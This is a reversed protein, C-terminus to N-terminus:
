GEQTTAYRVAAERTNELWVRAQERNMGHKTLMKILQDTRSPDISAETIWRADAERIGVKHLFRATERAWSIPSTPNYGVNVLEEVGPLRDNPAPGEGAAQRRVRYVRDLEEKLVARFRDGATSGILADTRRKQDPARVMRSAMRSAADPGKGTERRTADAAGVRALDRESPATQGDPTRVVDTRTTRETAPARITQTTGSPSLIKDIEDQIVNMQADLEERPITGKQGYVRSEEAYLERLRSREADTLQSDRKTSRAGTVRGGSFREVEPHLRKFARMMDLVGEAGFAGKDTEWNSPSGIVNITATKGDDTLVISAEVREGNPGTYRYSNSGREGNKLITGKVPVSKTVERIPIEDILNAVRREFRDADEALFGAGENDTRKVNGADDMVTNRGSGVTVADVSRSATGYDQMIERYRPSAEAASRVTKAYDFLAPSGDGRQGMRNLERGIRESMGLTFNTGETLQALANQQQAESMRPDIGRAAGRGQGQLAQYAARLQPDTTEDIVNQLARQGVSTGLVDMIEPTMPVPTNRIPEMAAEIDADRQQAIGLQYEEGSRTANAPRVSEDVARDVRSPLAEARSAAEDQLVERVGERQGMRGVISRMREPMVDILSPEMGLDRQEQLKREMEALEDQTVGFRDGAARESNPFLRERIPRALRGLGEAVLPFAVGITAGTVAGAGTNEFRDYPTGEGTAAVAGSTAGTVAGVAAKAGVNGAQAVRVVTPATAGARVAANGATSAARPALARVGKDFFAGPLAMSGAFGLATGARYAGPRMRADLQDQADLMLWNKEYNEGFDGDQVAAAAASAAEDGFNMLMLNGGTRLMTGLTDINDGAHPGNGNFVVRGFTPDALNNEKAYDRMAINELLDEENLQQGQELGWQMLDGASAGERMRKYLEASFADPSFKERQTPLSEPTDYPNDPQGSPTDSPTDFGVTDPNQGPEYVLPKPVQAEENQPTIVDFQDYPNAM